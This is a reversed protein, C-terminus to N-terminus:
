ENDNILAQLEYLLGKRPQEVELEADIILQARELDEGVWELLEKTTGKPVEVAAEAAAAPEPQTLVSVSAEVDPTAVPAPEVVPAEASASSNLKVNSAPSFPDHSPM